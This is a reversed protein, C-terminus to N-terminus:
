KKQPPITPTSKRAGPANTVERCRQAERRLVEAQKDREAAVELVYNRFRDRPAASEALTAELRDAVEATEYRRVATVVSALSSELSTFRLFIELAVSLREPSQKLEEIARFTSQLQQKASALQSAYAAPAGAESWRTPSLKELSPALLSLQQRLEDLHGRTEWEATIGPLPRNQAHSAFCLILALAINRM